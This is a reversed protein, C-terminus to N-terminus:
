KINNSLTLIKIGDTMKRFHRGVKSNSISYTHEIDTKIEVCLKLVKKLNWNLLYLFEFNHFVRNKLRKRINIKRVKLVASGLNLIHHLHLTICHFSSSM